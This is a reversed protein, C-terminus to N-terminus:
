LAYVFVIANRTYGHAYVHGMVKTKVMRARANLTEAKDGFPLDYNTQVCIRVSICM